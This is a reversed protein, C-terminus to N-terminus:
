RIQIPTPFVYPVRTPEVIEITPLPTVIPMTPYPTPTATQTPTLTLTPTSTVSPAVTETATPEESVTEDILPASAPETGMYLGIVLCLLLAAFLLLDVIIINILLQGNRM